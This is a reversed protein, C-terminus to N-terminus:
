AGRRDGLKGEALARLADERGRPYKIRWHIHEVLPRWDADELPTPPGQLARGRAAIECATEHSLGRHRLLEHALEEVAGWNEWVVAATGKVNFEVGGSRTERGASSTPSSGL